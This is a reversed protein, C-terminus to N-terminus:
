SQIIVVGIINNVTDSNKVYMSLSCFPVLSSNVTIDKIFSYLSTNIAITDALKKINTNPNKPSVPIILM